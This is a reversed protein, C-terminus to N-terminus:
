RRMGHWLEIKGLVDHVSIRPMRGLRKGTLIGPPDGPDRFADIVLDHSARYPGTRRPDTAGFLGIVPVGLAVAMHLPATDPAIVLASRRVIAVLERLPCGLTTLPKEGAGDMILREAALEADSRGGVLVARAGYRGHVADVVPLWREAPWDKEAKSTAVALAVLPRTERLLGESLLAGEHPWPGLNWEVTPHPVGLHDLFEFYQDQVHQNEHPAIQENTFLWNLDRARRRDFGLKVPADILATLLGAKIAVQLDIVLDFARGALQHRLGRWERMGKRPHFEIIEDVSPHGRVLTAPKPSLFWTIRSAPAHRKLANIVPLVHIADGIASLMVIAVRDLRFATM